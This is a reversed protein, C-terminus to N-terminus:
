NTKVIQLETSKTDIVLIDSSPQNRTANFDAFAKKIREIPDQGRSKALSTCLIESGLGDVEFEEIESVTGPEEVVYARDDQAFFMKDFLWGDNTARYRDALMIIRPVVDQILNKVNIDESFFDPNYKVLDAVLSSNEAGGVCHNLSVVKWLCTNNPLLNTENDVNFKGLGSVPRAFYVNEKDKLVILM